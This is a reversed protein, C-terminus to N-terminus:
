SYSRDTHMRHRLIKRLRPHMAFYQRSDSPTDVSAQVVSEGRERLLDIAELMLEVNVGISRARLTEIDAGDDRPIARTAVTRGTDIGEDIFHVTVGIPRRHFLSWEMVNMGRYEPLGAMHANLIGLRPARIIGSRLIEGGTNLLLDVRHRKVWDAAAPRNASDISIYDLGQERCTCSLPQRWNEIGMASLREDLLAAPDAGGSSRALEARIRRATAAWGYARRYSNLRRLRSTEVCLVGVVRDGRHLLRALLASAYCNTQSPALIAINM